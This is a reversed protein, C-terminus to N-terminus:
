VHDAEGPEGGHLGFAARAAATTARAAEEPAVGAAQAVGQCIYPLFAPENTRGRVPQPALFPCDTELLLSDLPARACVERLAHSKPYTVPGDVGLRFGLELVRRALPWDGSFCHVVGGVRGADQERLMALVDQHAERSHVVLPLGLELALEIQRAFAKQQADRPARDRYYDLGCEGWAVAGRERALAQLARWDEDGAVAADHPHVGVTFDVGAHGAALEAARRSTALDIGITVVREVGAERARALAAEPDDLM